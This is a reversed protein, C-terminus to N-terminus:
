PARSIAIESIPIDKMSIRENGIFGPSCSCSCGAKRSFRPYNSLMEVIQEHDTNGSVRLGEKVDDLIVRMLRVEEKNYKKWKRDAEKDQGKISFTPLEMNTEVWPTYVRTMGWKNRGDWPILKIEYGPILIVQIENSM